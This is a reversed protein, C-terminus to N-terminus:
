NNAARAQDITTQGCFPKLTTSFSRKLLHNLSVLLAKTKYREVAFATEESLGLILATSQNGCFSRRPWGCVRANMECTPSLLRCSAPYWPTGTTPTGKHPSWGSLATLIAREPIPSHTSICVTVLSFNYSVIRLTM